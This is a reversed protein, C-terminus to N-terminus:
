PCSGLNTNPTTQSMKRGFEDYGFCTRRTIGDATVTTGRLLLNNPGSNPGYDYATVIEDSAGASCASGTWASTKCSSESTLVWIPTAVQVWSAGSKIWAYRQIYSYRKQPRISNVAPGTETLLGGHAADYTYDTQNGLADKRWIPKTQTFFGTGFQATKFSQRCPRGPRPFDPKRSSM